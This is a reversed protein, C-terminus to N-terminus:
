RKDRIGAAFQDCFGVAAAFADDGSFQIQRSGIIQAHAPSQETVAARLLVRHQCFLAKDRDSFLLCVAADASVALATQAKGFFIISANFTKPLSVSCNGKPLVACLGGQPKAGCRSAYKGGNQVFIGRCVDTHRRSKQVIQRFIQCRM